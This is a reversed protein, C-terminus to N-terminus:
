AANVLCQLGASVACKAFFDCCPVRPEVCQEAPEGECFREISAVCQARQKKCRKKAKKGAKGAHVSGPSFASALFATGGFAILSNRRSISATARQTIPNFATESM